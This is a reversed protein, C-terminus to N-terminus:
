TSLALTQKEPQQLSAQKQKLDLVKSGTVKLINELKKKENEKNLDSFCPSQLSSKTLFLQPSLKLCLVIGKEDGVLLVPDNPSFLVKTLGYTDTKKSNIIRETHLSGNKNQTLDFIHVRGDM